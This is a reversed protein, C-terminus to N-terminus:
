VYGIMKLDDVFAKTFLKRGRVNLFDANGSYLKEDQFRSDRLYDFVPVNQINSLEINDLLVKKIFADGLHSNMIGSVPPIVLVPKFGRDLCYQIMQTLLIRTKVFKNELEESVTDSQTDMLNFSSIWSIIRQLAMVNVRQKSLPNVLVSSYEDNKDKGLIYKILKKFNMYPQTMIPFYNYLIFNTLTFENGLEKKNLFMVYRQPHYMGDGVEAFCLDPITIVVKCGEKFSGSFARIMKDTYYFFQAVFGFNYGSIGTESFDFTYRAYSSGFAVIDYEKSKKRGRKIHAEQENKIVIHKYYENLGLFVLILCILLLTIYYNMAIKIDM